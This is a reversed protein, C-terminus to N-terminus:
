SSRVHVVDMPGLKEILQDHRLTVRDRLTTLYGLRM